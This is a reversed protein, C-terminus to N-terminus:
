GTGKKTAAYKGPGVRRILKREQLVHLMGGVQGPFGQEQLVHQLETARMPKTQQRMIELATDLRTMGNPKAQRAANALPRALIGTCRKGELFQMIEWLSKEECIAQVMFQKV